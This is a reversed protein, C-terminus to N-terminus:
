GPLGGVQKQASVPASPSLSCNMVPVFARNWSPHLQLLAVMATPAPLTFEINFESLILM